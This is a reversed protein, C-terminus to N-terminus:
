PGASVRPDMPDLVLEVPGQAVGDLFVAVPRIASFLVDDTPGNLTAGLSYGFEPNFESGALALEFGWPSAGAIEITKQVIVKIDTRSNGGWMQIVLESGAPPELTGAARSVVGKVVGGSWASLILPGDDPAAPEDFVREPPLSEDGSRKCAAVVLLCLVVARHRPM